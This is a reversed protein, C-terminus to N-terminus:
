LAKEAIAWVTIPFNPDNRWRWQWGARAWRHFKARVAAANGWSGTRVDDDDFGVDILLHRMGTETWRTCDFPIPHHRIMFPTINIFYGGPRLM